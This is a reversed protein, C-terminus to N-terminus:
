TADGFELAVKTKVKVPRWSRAPVAVYTADVEAKGDLHQRIAQQSDRATVTGDVTFSEASGGVLITYETGPENSLPQLPASIGSTSTM